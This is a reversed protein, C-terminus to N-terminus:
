KRILKARGFGKSTQLRDTIGLHAMLLWVHTLLEGCQRLEHAHHIGQCHSAAYALMEVWVQTILEWMAKEEWSEDERLKRIHKALRCADFLVSKSRDGKVKSPSVKEIQRCLGLLKICVEKETHISYRDKVFETAEACTDQFRIEGIGNPLM